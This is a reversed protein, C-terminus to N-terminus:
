PNTRRAPLFPWPIFLEPNSKMQEDSLTLVLKGLNEGFERPLNDVGSIKLQEYIANLIRKHMTEDLDRTSIFIGGFKEWETLVTQYLRRIDKQKKGTVAEIVIGCLRLAPSEEHAGSLRGQRPEQPFPHNPFHRCWLGLTATILSREIIKERGDMSCSLYPTSREHMSRLRSISERIKKIETAVEDEPIPDHGDDLHAHALASFSDEVSIVCGDLKEIARVAAKAFPKKKGIRMRAWFIPETRMHCELDDLYAERKETQPLCDMMDSKQIETFAIKPMDANEKRRRHAPALPHLIGAKM